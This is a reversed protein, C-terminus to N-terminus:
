PFMIAGPAPGRYEGLQRGPQDPRLDPSPGVYVQPVAVGDRRGTNRVAFSVEIGGRTRRARLDEYSFSTYSLGHGFPFLPRM